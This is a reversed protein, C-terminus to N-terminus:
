ICNNILLLIEKVTGIITGIPSEEEIMWEIPIAPCIFYSWNPTRIITINTRCYFISSSLSSILITLEFYEESTKNLMPSTLYLQGLNNIAFLGYKDGSLIYYNYPISFCFFM